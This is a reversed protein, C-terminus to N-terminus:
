VLSFALSEAKRLDAEFARRGDKWTIPLISFLWEHIADHSPRSQGEWKEAVSALFGRYADAALDSEGLRAHAAAAWAKENPFANSCLAIAQAAGAFDGSL